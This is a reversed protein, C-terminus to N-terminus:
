AFQVAVRLFDDIIDRILTMKPRDVAGDAHLNEFVLKLIM